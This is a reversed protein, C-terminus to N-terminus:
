SVAGSYVGANSGFSDCASTGSAEGLRWYGILGPTGAITAAYPSSTGTCTAASAAPAGAILSLAACACAIVIRSTRSM